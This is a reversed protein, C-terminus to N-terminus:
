ISKIIDSLMLLSWSLPPLSIDNSKSNSFKCEIDGSIDQWQLLNLSEFLITWRFTLENDIKLNWEIHSVEQEAKLSKIIVDYSSKKPKLSIYTEYDLPINNENSIINWISIEIWKQSALYSLIFNVESNQFMGSFSKQIIWDSFESFTEQTSTLILWSPTFWLKSYSSIAKLLDEINKSTEIMEETNKNSSQLILKLENILELSTPANEDVNIIWWGGAELDIRRDVLLDSFLWYMKASINWEWMDISFNHLLTYLWKNQYLLSLSWQTSLPDLNWTTAKIDIDFSIESNENKNTLKKTEKSFYINGQISSTEDFTGTLSLKSLISENDNLNGTTVSFLNSSDSFIKTEEIQKNFTNSVTLWEEPTLWDININQPTDSTCGVLLILPILLLISLFKQM